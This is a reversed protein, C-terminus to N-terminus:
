LKQSQGAVLEGKKMLLVTDAIAAAANPDHTTFVVTRGQQAITKMLVLMQQSNILDLHSCPEDLLLIEPEQALARSQTPQFPFCRFWFLSWASM